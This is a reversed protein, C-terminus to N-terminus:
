GVNIRESVNYTVEAIFCDLNLFYFINKNVNGRLIDSQHVVLVSSKRMGYFPFLLVSLIYCVLKVTSTPLQIISSTHDRETDSRRAPRDISASIYGTCLLPKRQM